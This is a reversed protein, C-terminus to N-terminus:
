GKGGFKEIIGLLNKINEGVDGKFVGSGSVLIEAGNELALQATEKNIGGDIQILVPLGEEDIAKRIEKLKPLVEPMFKQGGFGPHVSMVLVMDVKDLYPIVKEAPTEPNLSIGARIGEKRGMRICEEAESVEVHCTIGDAGAKLFSEFYKAPREIMLHTDFFMETEKRLSAIVPPGITINPVFHGDMVDLHIEDIGFGELKHVEDALRSFDASLISPSLKMSSFAVRM